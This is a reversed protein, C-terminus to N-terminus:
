KEPMKDNILAIDKRYHMGEFNINNIYKYVNNRAQEHSSAKSTVNIVRGGSTILNNESNLTAGAIFQITNGIKNDLVTIPVGKKYDDPYGESCLVTCVCSENSFKFKNYSLKGESAQYCIELLDNELLPLIVQTEPDGFRCNFELVSIDGNESLILGCYLLGKYKIGESEMAKLTKNIINQKILKLQKATLWKVPAYSGMGGTNPGKNDDFAAKYDQAPILEVAKNGDCIAFLSLERGKIYDEIIIKQNKNSYIKNLTDEASTKDFCVTVGKGAALSDLKIVIPLISQKIYELSEDLNDFLKYNATPIEYKKMLNKAFIKSTEIQAAEKSPGFIKLGNKEFLDVIGLSLPVEPGVITLDINNYRAFTLLGEIDEVNITVTEALREIGANSPACYLKSLKSSQSIKWALAHERGGSGIILVKM